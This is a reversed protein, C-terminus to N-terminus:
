KYLIVHGIYLIARAFSMIPAYTSQMTETCTLEQNDLRPRQMTITVYENVLGIPINQVLLRASYPEKIEALPKHNM